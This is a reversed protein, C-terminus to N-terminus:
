QAIRIQKVLARRQKELYFGLGILIVGGVLFVLGTQAMSGFLKVYATGIIVAITATATNVLFRSRL